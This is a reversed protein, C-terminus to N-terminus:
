YCCLNDGLDTFYVYQGDTAIGLPKDFGSYWGSALETEALPTGDKGVGKVAASWVESWYVNSSDIAVHMPWSLSGALFTCSLPATVTGCDTPTLPSITAAGIGELKYIGGGMTDGANFDAFYLISRNNDLIELAPPYPTSLGTMLNEQAIPTSSSTKDMRFVRSGYMEVVYVYRNDVALGIPMNLSEALLSSTGEGAVVKKVTGDTYSNEQTGRESFYVATDGGEGIVAVAFPSHLGEALKTMTGNSLDVRNVSGDEAYETFYLFGEYIRPMRPNNLGSVLVAPPTGPAANADLKKISGTCNGTGDETFYLVGNDVTIHWTGNLDSVLKVPDPGAVVPVRFVASTDTLFVDDCQSDDSLGVPETTSNEPPAPNM